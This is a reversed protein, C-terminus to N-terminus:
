GVMPANLHKGGMSGYFGATGFAFVGGDAAVLDYGAPPYTFLDAPTRVSVGLPDTVSVDEPGAGPPSVAVIQTPSVVNVSRAPTTGFTVDPGTGFNSGTITVLTGGGSAGGSPALSTIVPVQPSVASLTTQLPPLTPHVISFNQSLGIVQVAVTSAGAGAGSPYEILRLGTIKDAEWGLPLKVATRGHGGDHLAFGSGFDSTYWQTSGSLQIAVATASLNSPSSKLDIVAYQRADGLQASFPDTSGNTYWRACEQASVQYTWPHTDMVSARTAGSAPGPVPVQQIRFPTTGTASQYDNGTANRVVAHTTQFYSGAFPIEGEHPSSENQPYTTACECGDYMPNSITGTSSVTLQTTGTIDTMRGWEGLELFPVFATGQAERSWIGTYSLDTSGGAAPQSVAYTLLPTDNQASDTRGYVVPAYKVADFWPNTPTVVDLQQHVVRVSPTVSGTTSLAANVAVTLTHSGTTLTGVFGAYTFATAGAFCVIQQTTGHDVTVTVVVSRDVVHSWSTGPASLTLEAVGQGTVPTVPAPSGAAPLGPGTVANPSTLTPAVGASVTTTLPAGPVITPATTSITVPSALPGPTPPGASPGPPSTVTTGSAFGIGDIGVITVGGSASIHAVAFLCASTCDATGAATKIEPTPTFSGRATGASNAFVVTDRRNDCANELISLAAPTCEVAVMAAGPVAGTVTFVIPTGPTLGTTATTTLVPAPSAGGAAAAPGSVLGIIGVPLLTAAAVAPIARARHRWRRPRAPASNGGESSTVAGVDHM